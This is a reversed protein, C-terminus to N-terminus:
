GELPEVAMKAGEPIAFYYCAALIGLEDTDPSVFIRHTGTSVHGLTSAHAYLSGAGPNRDRVARGLLRWSDRITKRIEDMNNAAVLEGTIRVRLYIRMREVTDLRDTAVNVIQMYRNIAAMKAVPIVAGAGIEKLTEDDDPICSAILKYWESDTPIAEYVPGDMIDCYDHAISTM